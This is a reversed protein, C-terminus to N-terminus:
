EIEMGYVQVLELLPSDYLDKPTVLVGEDSDLEYGFHKYAYWILHACQTGVVTEELKSTKKGTLTKWFGSQGLGATLHYPLNVLNRKAYDAIVARDEKSVGSLRLVAFSPRSLWGRLSLISSERGLTQAELTLGEKADVVLAAHGNRWGLFHSNFTILIDGDELAPIVETPEEAMRVRRGPSQEEKIMERFVLFNRECGIEIERFFRQQVVLIDEIRGERRLSDIAARSLGTQRFLVQYDAETLRWKELYVTIDEMPYDPTWRVNKEASYTWVFLIITLPIAINVVTFVIRRVRRRKGKKM